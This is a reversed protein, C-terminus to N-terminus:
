RLTESLASPEGTYPSSSQRLWSQPTTFLKIFYCDRRSKSRLVWRGKCLPPLANAVNRRVALCYNVIRFLYRLLASVCFLFGDFTKSLNRKSYLIKVNQSIPFILKSDDFPALPSARLQVLTSRPHCKAIAFLCINSSFCRLIIHVGFTLCKQLHM